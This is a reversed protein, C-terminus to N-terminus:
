QAELYRRVYDLREQETLATFSEINERLHDILDYYEEDVIEKAKPTLLKDTKPNRSVYKAVLYYPSKVKFAQGSAAYAVFGEHKVTKNLALLDAVTTDFAEAYGCSCCTLAFNKWAKAIDLGRGPMESDWSNMRWGLFYMGIDEPVIHPDDPHVCEFMLTAGENMRVATQWQGWTQHHLMMEKAYAVFPSDISGTTSVLIDDDYWTMAVMFGNVKRYATVTTFDTFLPSRAEVGYNYIKTFPRSIVNFNGDVITGRCEELYDNWLADFIVKKKYRLIYLDEGVEKMSVLKPNDEVFQKLDDQFM